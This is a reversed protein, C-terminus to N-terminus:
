CQRQGVAFLGKSMKPSKPRSGADIIVVNDHVMGFNFLANDSLIHERSHATVMAHVAGLICINSAAPYEKLIQDLPKAYDIIWAHWTKVPRGASNVVQCQCSAHVKPCM